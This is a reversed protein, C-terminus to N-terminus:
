TARGDRATLLHQRAHLLRDLHHVRAVHPLQRDRALQAEALLTARSARALRADGVVRHAERGGERGGGERGGM